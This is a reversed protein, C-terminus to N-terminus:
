RGRISHKIFAAHYQNNLPAQEQKIIRSKTRDATLAEAISQPMEIDLQEASNQEASDSLASTICLGQGLTFLGGSSQWYVPFFRPYRFRKLYKQLLLKKKVDTGPSWLDLM